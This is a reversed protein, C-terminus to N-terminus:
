HSITTDTVQVSTSFGGALPIGIGPCIWTLQGSTAGGALNIWGELLGGNNYLNVYLPVNGNKSIPVNASIATGDGLVGALALVSNVMLGSAVGLKTPSNPSSGPSLSFNVQALAPYANTALDAILPATWAVGANTGEISGTMQQTGNILDLHLAAVYGPWAPNSRSIAASANGSINFVGALVYSSGSIYLKASFAGNGAVVCNGFYGATAETINPTGDANTQFFLGNYAGAATAITNTPLVTLTVISSTVVGAVNSLTFGYTGANANAVQPWGLVNNTGGALATKGRYWQISLPATGTSASSFSAATTAIATQSQPQVLISPPDIVTLTVISSTVVGAANSVTFGYRGANSDAVHAWALVSNTGGALATRGDYWQISFPATGTLFSSFSAANSLIVTQSQPQTLISPPNIVTLTVISSTVVGAANSVTFGYTGANSNAVHAWALVNKTAGALPTRGDYWQISLPATGTLFSSFSAANSLIVTQSQPQTLISPPSAAIVSLTVISSTVVGAANSVTFGYTGANSNAVHAWALVSNTAGALATRGDYWQISLPATGTLVSSFSAANSLIVTQSQPQTLILPSGATIVSLTAVSSTASGWPNSVIVTYAGANGSGVHPWFLSSATAGPVPVLGNRWQFSLPSDGAATVVLTVPLGALASQTLPQVVISPLIPLRNTIENSFVSEDGNAYYAAAAFYYTLGPTLGTIAATLNTGANVTSTYAGSTQGYFIEYGTVRPDPSANWALTLNAASVTTSLVALGLLGGTLKSLWTIPLVRQPFKHACPAGRRHLLRM